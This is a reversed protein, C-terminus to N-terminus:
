QCDYCSQEGSGSCDDCEERGSGGCRSCEETGGGGCYPCEELGDDGDIKGTGRCEDCDREGSGRCRGCEWHGDGDCNSCTVTGEGRCSDCRWLDGDTSELSYSDASKQNSLTGRDPRFYKLTDLYPYGAYQGSKIDVVMPSLDVQSGTNPDITIGSDTSGNYYKVFIDNDKAWDRFLQVDSDVITYIRDMFKKGGRLTWLLARGLIKTEDQESKYIVLSCVEPNSMYIDFYRKEVGSMCSSGLNGRKEFYNDRSYWHGIDQGSVVEFYQFRDNAKDIQSKWLNVFDELDKDSFKVGATTLLARIGRGVSIEQRGRQWLAAEKQDVPRLKECNYVGQGGPFKVWAYKKGSTDSTVEAIVEGIETQPADYPATTDEYRYGLKQFISDNTEKHKLWGAGSGVFTVYKRTDALIEQAKRDPIFNLKDNEKLNIDLYNNRVPLDNNEISLIVDSLPHEIKSVIKKFKKSYVVNSEFIAELSESIFELYRKIM